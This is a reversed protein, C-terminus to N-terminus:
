YHFVTKLYPKILLSDKVVQGFIGPCLKRHSASIILSVSTGVICLSLGCAKRGGPYVMVSSILMMKFMPYIVANVTVCYDPSHRHGPLINCLHDHVTDASGSVVVRISICISSWQFIEQFAFVLQPKDMFFCFSIQLHEKPNRGLSSSSFCQFIDLMNIQFSLLFIIVICNSCTKPIM